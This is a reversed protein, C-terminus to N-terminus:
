SRTGVGLVLTPAASRERVIGAATRRAFYLSTRTETSTSVSPLGSMFLQVTILVVCGHSASVSLVATVFVANSGANSAPHLTGRTHSPVNVDPVGGFLQSNSACYRSGWRQRPPCRIGRRITCTWCSRGRAAR